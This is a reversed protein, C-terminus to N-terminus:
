YGKFNTSYSHLFTVGQNLLQLGKLIKKIEKKDDIKRKNIENIKMREIHYNRLNLKYNSSDAISDILLEFPFRIIDKIIELLTGFKQRIHDNLFTWLLVLVLGLVLVSPVLNSEPIFKSQM